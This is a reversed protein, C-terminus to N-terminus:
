LTFKCLLFIAGFKRCFLMDPMLMMISSGLEITKLPCFQALVLCLRKSVDLYHLIPIKLTPYIEKWPLGQNLLNVRLLFYSPLKLFKLNHPYKLYNGSRTCLSEFPFVVTWEKTKRLLFYPTHRNWNSEKRRLLTSEIFRGSAVKFIDSIRTSWSSLTSLIMILISIWVGTFRQM